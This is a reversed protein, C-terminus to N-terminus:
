FLFAHAMVALDNRPCRLLDFVRVLTLMDSFKLLKVVPVQELVSKIGTLKVAWCVFQLFYLPGLNFILHLIPFLQPIKYVIDILAFSVATESSSFHHKMVASSLCVNAMTMGDICSLPSKHSWILNRISVTTEATSFGKEAIKTPSIMAHIIGVAVVDVPIMPIARKTLPAFRIVRTGWLLLLATITSPKDGNWGPEPLAWAPRVIKLEMNKNGRVVLHEAVCKTFVYNNPFALEEKVALALKQDGRMSEYLAQPDYKGLSFLQELMPAEYSGHGPNVFATSCHIFRKCSSWQQALAQLQLAPSINIGASDALPRNFNVDAACHVVHSINAGALMNLTEESMGCSAEQLDGSQAAVVVDDWQKRYPAFMPEDRLMELRQAASLNKRAKARAMVYVKHEIREGTASEGNAIERLLQFLFSRGVYGTAGTLLIKCGEGKNLVQDKWMHSLGEPSAVKDLDVLWDEPASQKKSMAALHMTMPSCKRLKKGSYFNVFWVFSALLALIMSCAISAQPPSWAGLPAGHSWLVRLVLAVVLVASSVVQGQQRAQQPTKSKDTISCMNPDIFLPCASAFNNKLM